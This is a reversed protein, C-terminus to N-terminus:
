LTEKLLEKVPFTNGSVWIWRGVIEIVLGPHSIIKDIIAKYVENIQFEVEYEEQNINQGNAVKKFLQEYENNLQKMQENSGGADPHYIKALKYYQKKLDDLDKIKDTVFLGSLAIDFFESM